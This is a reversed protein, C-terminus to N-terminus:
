FWDDEMDIEMEEREQEEIIPEIELGTLEAFWEKIRELLGQLAELIAKAIEYAESRTNDEKIPSIGEYETMNYKEILRNMNMDAFEFKYHGLEKRYVYDSHGNQEWYAFRKLEDFYCNYGKFYSSIDSKIEKYNEILEEKSIDPLSTNRNQATKENLPYLKGFEVFFEKIQEIQPIYLRNSGLMECFVQKPTRGELNYEGEVLDFYKNLEGILKNYESVYESKPNNKGIHKTPFHRSVDFKPLNLENELHNKYDKVFSMSFFDKKNDFYRTCGKQIVTGKPVIKVADAKKCKNGKADYYYTRPAVKQGEIVPKELLERESFILHAHLNNEKSKYHIACTCYVGYRKQFDDCLEKALDTTNIDQPLAIIFERAEVPKRGRKAHSTKKFQERNEIALQQWFSMDKSNYFDVINEQREPNSIYDIRGVVNSLNRNSVYSMFCVGENNAESYSTYCLITYLILGEANSLSFLKVSCISRMQVTVKKTRRLSRRLAKLGIPRNTSRM